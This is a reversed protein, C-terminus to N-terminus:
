TWLSSLPVATMGEGFPYRISGDYLVIGQAFKDGCIKQLLRLGKFDRSNVTASAKVEIGAIMGDGRKVVIDVKHRGNDRFHYLTHLEDSAIKLKLLESYVFSELIRGFVNRESKIQEVGYKSATALLGTDLFHLKPSKTLRGLANTHWPRLTAILYVQELLSIYRKATHYSIGSVAALESYNILLGSYAALIEVFDPLSTLKELTAIERLDRTLTLELYSNTWKRRQKENLVIADPYGGTMVLKVLDGGIVPYKPKPINGSFLSDFFTPKVGYIEARALPFLNIRQMRGVMSDAMQPVLLVNASGTLLFRGPKRDEDVSKKITLFLEPARQIEDIIVNDFERIFGIPDDKAIDLLVQDDLNVYERNPKQQKRALTTKGAQRPGTIMVVPNFSLAEEIEDEILRNYYM